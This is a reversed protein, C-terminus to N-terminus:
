SQAVDATRNDCVTAASRCARMLPSKLARWWNKCSSSAKKSSCSFFSCISSSSFTWRWRSAASCPRPSSSSLKLTKCFALVSAPLSIIGSTLAWWSSWVRRRFKFVSFLNMKKGCQNKLTIIEWEDMELQRLQPSPESWWSSCYIVKPM